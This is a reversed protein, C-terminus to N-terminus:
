RRRKRKTKKKIAGSTKKTSGYTKKRGGSKKNKTYLYKPM